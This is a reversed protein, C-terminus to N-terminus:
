TTLSGDANTVATQTQDTKGDGNADVQRSVTLRNASTTTVTSDRLSGNANLDTVTEVQSGDANHVVVDTQTQDFTGAGTTDRQTTTSLGSASTTTVTRDKLSGNANLDAATVVSSGDANTTATQTHTQDFVGDGNVDTATSTTHGDASTTTVTQGILSGA